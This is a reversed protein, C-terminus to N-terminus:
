STTNNEKDAVDPCSHGFAERRKQTCSNKGCPCTLRHCSEGRRMELFRESGNYGSGAFRQAEGGDIVKEEEVLSTGLSTNLSHPERKSTGHSWDNAAVEDLSCSPPPVMPKHGDEGADINNENKKEERFCLVWAIQM